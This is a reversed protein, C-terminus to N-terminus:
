DGDNDQYSIQVGLAATMEYKIKPVMIQMQSYANDVTAFDSNLSGSMPDQVPNLAQKISEFQGRIDDALLGGNMADTELCALYEYLGPGNSGNVGTGEFLLKISEIQHKALRVSEGAFYGEVQEPLVVGGNFKGLPIKFKFNKLTEFDFNLDNVLLSISSGDATGTNNIFSERYNGGSALWGNDIQAVTNQLETALQLLYAKRNAALPDTTYFELVDENSTGPAIFLLYDIAPFGVASKAASVVTSGDIINDNITITNTPFTNFRENFRIGNILGPGFALMSCEQYQEYAFVYKLRAEQMLGITPNSNFEAVSSEFLILSISLEALRPLIIQDAYHTLMAQEDFDCKVLDPSTDCSVGGIVITILVLLKRM